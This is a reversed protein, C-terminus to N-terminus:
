PFTGAGGSVVEEVVELIDEVEVEGVGVPGVGTCLPMVASHSDRDM